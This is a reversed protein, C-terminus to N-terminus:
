NDFCYILKFYFKSINKQNLENRLFIQQYEQLIYIYKVIGTQFNIKYTEYFFQEISKKYVFPSRLVSTFCKSKSLNSVSGFFNVNNFIFFKEILSNLKMGLISFIFANLKLSYFYKLSSSVIKSQWLFCNSFYILLFIKNKISYYIFKIQSKKKLSLFIIKKKKLLM